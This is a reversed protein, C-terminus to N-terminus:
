PSPHLHGGWYNAWVDDDKGILQVEHSQEEKNNVITNPGPSM